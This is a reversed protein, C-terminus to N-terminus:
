GLKGQSIGDCSKHQNSNAHDVVSSTRQNSTGQIWTSSFNTQRNIRTRYLECWLMSIFSRDSPDKDCRLWTLSRHPANYQGQWSEFTRITIQHRDKKESQSSDFSSSSSTRTRKRTAMKVPLQWTYGTMKQAHESIASPRSNYQARAEHLSACTCGENQLKLLESKCLWQLGSYM